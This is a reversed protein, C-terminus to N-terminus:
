HIIECLTQTINGQCSFMDNLPQPDEAVEPLHECVASILPIEAKLALTGHTHTHRLWHTSASRLRVAANPPTARSV